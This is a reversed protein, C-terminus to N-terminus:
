KGWNIGRDLLAYQVGYQVKKVLTAPQFAARLTSRIMQDSAHGSQSPQLDCVLSAHIYM